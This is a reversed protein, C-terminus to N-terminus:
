FGFYKSANYYSVNEALQGLKKKNNPYEGNEVWTGLLNCFIRRFYEHRTYSLFSRSDTLMGVFNGLVSLNAFSTLQAIMGTKTDNFWWGAGLQIKGAIETGQFSGIISGILENDNPNLSYFIMKPLTGRNNLENLFATLAYGSNGVAICDFGTDAGIEKLARVNPSRQVSYHIQMGWGRKCYEGALFLLVATKYAEIEVVTLVEGNLNKQLIRNVEDESVLEFFMYNLGHDSARCGMQAFFEIRKELAACIDTFSQIKIQAAEGLRKLYSAFDPKEINLITDPRMAPVVKATCSKEEKIKKHWKLDDAPDDTTCIVEVNSQKILGPVSMEPEQLKKNCLNWVDEATERDLPTKCDFYRQLELHTWHYLPNGIANPLAEAFKQFKNWDSANGTIYNEAVGNSRIMRWKYHDGGLWAETINKFVHNEAIEQPNIHCHYDIIPMNAAHEHYLYKATENELLFDKDMFEKM